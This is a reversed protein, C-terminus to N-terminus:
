GCKAEYFVDDPALVVVPKGESQYAVSGEVISGVVPCNHIHRGAAVDAPIRIAHLASM